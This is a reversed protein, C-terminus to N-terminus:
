TSERTIVRAPVHRVGPLLTQGDIAQLLYGAAERGLLELNLDITTLAPDSNTALVEWNDYGMVAVDEPVARGAAHLADVVGRAIQDSGAFVADVEPHESLLKATAERGWRESWESFMVDGCLPLGADALAQNMGLVRDNAAVYGRDGTIHAIHRRGRSVLHRVALVAGGVNDTVLSVDNPDDSPAYAYVVPVPLNHGLPPRAETRSGVVIIGDVRRSLLARLHHQESEEDGRADCLFVSLEGTGCADEVAILIPLAFRGDLDSTLIGVTSSRGVLLSRALENPAFGLTKAVETVRERTASSVDGRNNLAKSATAVSVGARKAVDLLTVAKAM